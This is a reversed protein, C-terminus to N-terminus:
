GKKYRKATYGDAFLPLDPGWTPPVCMLRVMQKLREEAGEEPEECIVEDYIDAIRNYGHRALRDLGLSLIDRGLGQIINEIIRMPKLFTWGWQKTEPNIGMHKIVPGMKSDVLHPERYYLSRGSPLTM